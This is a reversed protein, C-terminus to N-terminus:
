QYKTYKLYANSIVGLRTVSTNFMKEVLAELKNHIPTVDSYGFNKQTSIFPYLVMKNSTIESLLIDAIVDDDFPEELIKSFFKKYLIIFQTASCNNVWYRDQTIKVAHVFGGIGGSLIDAGQQHAEIINKLLFAKSYTNTFEHDDECIIIVDDDHDIAMQVVKRISNWLGVAGIKHKCAEVFVVDFEKRGEFQKQIHARRETREPLNIIYTPIIINDFIEQEAETAKNKHETKYFTLVNLLYEVTESAKKFYEAVRGAENNKKTADSYGFDKQISIFPYIFFQRTTLSSIKYDALDNNEFEAELITKFFKNFLIVFQSGNFLETWFLYKSIPFASRLASVGGLLVDAENIKAEAICDFLHQKSYCPTFEHDDECILIFDKNQKQAMDVIKHISQWLGIAGVPHKVAAIVSIEFESKDLFQFKIHKLRDKREKLNIVYTPIILGNSETKAM